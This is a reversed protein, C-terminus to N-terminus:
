KTDVEEVYEPSGTIGTAVVQRGPQLRQLGEVVVPEYESLDGDVLVNGATRASDVESEPVAGDKVALEYRNLLSKADKLKVEALQVALKEDRDDLQVLMSGAKVKDGSKFYVAMVEESVAPYIRVSQQARGTGLAEFIRDNATIVIPTTIVRIAPSEPVPNEQTNKAQPEIFSIVKEWNWFLFVSIILCTFIFIRGM